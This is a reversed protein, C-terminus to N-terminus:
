RLRRWSLPEELRSASSARWPHPLGLYSKGLDLASEWTRPQNSGTPVRQLLAWLGAAAVLVLIALATKAVKEVALRRESEV